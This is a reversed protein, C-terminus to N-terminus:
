RSCRSRNLHDFYMEHFNVFHSLWHQWSWSIGLQVDRTEEWAWKEQENEIIAAFCQGINNRREVSAFRRSITTINGEFSKCEKPRSEYCPLSQLSTLNTLHWVRCRTTFLCCLTVKRKLQKLNLYIKDSVLLRRHLFCSTWIRGTRVPTAAISAPREAEFEVRYRSDKSPNEESAVDICSKSVQAIENKSGICLNVAKLACSTEDLHFKLIVSRNECLLLDIKHRRIFDKVEADAAVEDDDSHRVIHQKPYIHFMRLFWFTRNRWKKIARTTNRCFRLDNVNIKKGSISM